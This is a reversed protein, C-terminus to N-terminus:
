GRRAVRPTSARNHCRARTHHQVFREGGEGGEAPIQVATEVPAGIRQELQGVRQEGGIGDGRGGIQAQLRDVAAPPAAEVGGQSAALDVLRAQAGEESAM